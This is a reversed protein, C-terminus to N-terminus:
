IKEEIIYQLLYKRGLIHFDIEDGKMQNYTARETGVQSHLVEKKLRDTWVIM